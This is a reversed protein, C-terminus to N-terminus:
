TAGNPFSNESWLLVDPGLRKRIAEAVELQRRRVARIEKQQLSRPISVARIRFSPQLRLEWESEASSVVSVLIILESQEVGVEWSAGGLPYELVLEKPVPDPPLWDAARLADAVVEM